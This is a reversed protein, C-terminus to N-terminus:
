MGEAHIWRVAPKDRDPSKLLDYRTAVRLDGAYFYHNSFTIIDAHSRHHDKLMVQDDLVMPSALDFASNSSYGWAAYSEFLDYRALLEADRKIPIASIHKLQKPDGIIVVSKARYLLPLLSAIDCQSAEDVVLLDFFGPEFPVRGRASLSTVAWCPLQGLLKPYLRYYQAFVEKGVSSGNEDSQSLLRLIACFDGLVKRDEASLRSPALRLWAEWLRRSQVPVKDMWQALERSMKLGSGRVLMMLLERYGKAAELHPIRARLRCAVQIWDAVATEDTLDPPCPIEASHLSPIAASIVQRLSELREAVSWRWLLKGFWSQHEKSARKGAAELQHAILALNGLDLSAVRLFLDEGLTQRITEIESEAADVSNRLQIVEESRRQM